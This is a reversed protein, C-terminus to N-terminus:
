HLMCSRLYESGVVDYSFGTDRIQEWAELAKARAAEMAEEEQKLNEESLAYGLNKINQLSAMKILFSLKCCSYIQILPEIEADQDGLPIDEITPSTPPILSTNQYETNELAIIQQQCHQATEGDKSIFQKTTGPKGPEPIEPPM